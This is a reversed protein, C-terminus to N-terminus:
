VRQWSYYSHNLKWFCSHKSETVWFTTFGKDNSQSHSCYIYSFRDSKGVHFSKQFTLMWDLNENERRPHIVKGSDNKRMDYCSRCYDTVISKNHSNQDSHLKQDSDISTLVFRYSTESTNALTLLSRVWVQIHQFILRAGWVVEFNKVCYIEYIPALHDSTLKNVSKQLLGVSNNIIQSM